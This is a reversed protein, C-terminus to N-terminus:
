NTYHQGEGGHYTCPYFTARLRYSLSLPSLSLLSLSSTEPAMAPTPTEANGIGRSSGALAARGCSAEGRRVDGAECQLQM